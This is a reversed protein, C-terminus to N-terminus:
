CNKTKRIWKGKINQDEFKKGQIFLDASPTCTVNPSANCSVLSSPVKALITRREKSYGWYTDSWNLEEMSFQTKSLALTVLEQAAIDYTMDLNEIIMHQMEEDDAHEQIEMLDKASIYQDLTTHPISFSILSCQPASPVPLANLAGLGALFALFYM